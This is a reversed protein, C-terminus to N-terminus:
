HVRNMRTQNGHETTAMQARCDQLKTVYHEAYRLMLENHRQMAALVKSSQKYNTGSVHDEAPRATRGIAEEVRGQDNKLEGVLDQWKQIVGDLEDLSAFMYSGKGGGGGSQHGAADAAVGLIGLVPAMTNAVADFLSVGAATTRIQEEPTGPDTEAQDTSTGDPVTM